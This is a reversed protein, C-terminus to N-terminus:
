ADAPVPPHDNDLDSGYPELERPFSSRTATVHWWRGDSLIIHTKCTKCTSSETM